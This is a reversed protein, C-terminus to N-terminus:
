YQGRPPGPSGPPRGGPMGPMGGPMSMREYGAPIEFLEAPQRGLKINRLEVRMTQQEDEWRIPMEGLDQALWQFGVFTGDKGTVTVKYKRTPHGGVTESGLLQREVRQTPDRGSLAEGAEPAMPMEIYVKEEPMLMWLVRKDFRAIMIQRQGPGGFAMEMRYASPGVFVKGTHTGDPTRMVQEAAYERTFQALAAPGIVLAILILPVLRSVTAPRRM